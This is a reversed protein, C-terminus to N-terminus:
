MPVALCDETSSLEHACTCTTPSAYATCPELRSAAIQACHFTCDQTEKADLMPNRLQGPKTRLLRTSAESTTGGNCKAVKHPSKCITPCKAGCPIDLLRCPLLAGLTNELFGRQYLQSTNSSQVAGYCPCHVVDQM